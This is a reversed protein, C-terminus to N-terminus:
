CDIFLYRLVSINLIVIIKVMFVNKKKFDIEIVVYIKNDNLLILM